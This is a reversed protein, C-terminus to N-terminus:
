KEDADQDRPPPPRRPRLTKYMHRRLHDTPLQRVSRDPPRRGEKLVKNIVFAAGGASLVVPLLLIIAPSGSGLGLFLVLVVILVVVVDDM